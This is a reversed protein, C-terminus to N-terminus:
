YIYSFTNTRVGVRHSEAGCGDGVQNHVTYASVYNGGIQSGDRSGIVYWVM